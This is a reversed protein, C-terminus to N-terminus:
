QRYLLSRPPRFSLLLLSAATSSVSAGDAFDPVDAMPGPLAPSEAKATVVIVYFLILRSCDPVKQGLLVHRPRDLIIHASKALLLM